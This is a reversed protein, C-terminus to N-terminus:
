FPKYVISEIEFEKSGGPLQATFEDGEERGLLQKGLPSNFSIIGFDPNSDLSSGLTYTIKKDVDIDIVTVTSGFSVKKHSLTSPDIIVVRTIMDEMNAIRKDINAQEEKAAHYEANEKLDGLQRAEEIAIIIKPRHILKLDNLEKTLKDFGKSTMPEQQM